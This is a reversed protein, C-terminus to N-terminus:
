IREDRRGIWDSYREIIVDPLTEIKQKVIWYIVYDYCRIKKDIFFYDHEVEIIELVIGFDSPVSIWGTKVDEMNWSRICVLDGVVIDRCYM